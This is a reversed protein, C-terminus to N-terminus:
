FRKSERGVAADLRLVRSGSGSSGPDAATCAFLAGSQAFALDGIPGDLSEPRAAAALVGRSNRRLFVPLEQAYSAWLQSVTKGAAAARVAVQAPVAGLPVAEVESTDDLRLTRLAFGADGTEQLIWVRGTAPEVDFGRMTEVGPVLGSRDASDDGVRGDETLRLLVSMARAAPTQGAAPRTGGWVGAYLRGAGDFRLRGLPYRGDLARELLVAREGLAGGVERYRVLQLRHGREDTGSAKLAYVFHTVQYAPHVALSLVSPGAPDPELMLTGQADAGPRVRRIGTADAVIVEGPPGGIALASCGTAPTDSTSSTQSPAPATVRAAVSVM